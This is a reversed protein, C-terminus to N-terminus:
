RSKSQKESQYVYETEKIQEKLEKEILRMKKNLAELYKKDLYKAYKARVLTKYKELEDLVLRLNSPDTDDDDAGNIIFQLFEDIKRKTKKILINQIAKPSVLTMKSVLIGDYKINNLPKIKFGELNKSNLQVTIKGNEETVFYKKKM